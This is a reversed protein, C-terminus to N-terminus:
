YDHQEDTTDATNKDAFHHFMLTSLRLEVEEM